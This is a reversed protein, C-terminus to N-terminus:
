STGQLGRLVRDREAEAAAPQLAPDRGTLSWPWGLTFVPQGNRVAHVHYWGWGTNQERHTAAFVLGPMEDFYLANIDLKDKKFLGKERVLFIGVSPFVIMLYKTASSMGDPRDFVDVLSLELYPIAAPDAGSENLTRDVVGSWRGQESEPINSRAFADRYQELDWCGM